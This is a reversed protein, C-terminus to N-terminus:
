ICQALIRQEGNRRKGLEEKKGKIKDQNREKSKREEKLQTKGTM